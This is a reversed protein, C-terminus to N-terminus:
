RERKGGATESVIKYIADKTTGLLEALKEYRYDNRIRSLRRLADAAANIHHLVQQFTAYEDETPPDIKPFLLKSM